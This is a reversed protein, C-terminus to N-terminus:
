HGTLVVIALALAFVMMLTQTVLLLRRTVWRDNVVGAWPGFVLCPVFQLFTVLGLLAPSDTLELILLAQAMGQMFFGVRSILQGAYWRRFNPYNLSSFSEQGFRRWNM